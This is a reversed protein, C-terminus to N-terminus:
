SGPGKMALEVRYLLVSRIQPDAVEAIRARIMAVDEPSPDAMLADVVARLPVLNEPEIANLLTHLLTAVEPSTSSAVRTIAKARVGPDEADDLAIAQLLRCNSANNVDLLMIASRKAVTPESFTEIGTTQTNTVISLLVSQSDGFPAMGVANVAAVRLNIDDSKILETKILDYNAQDMNINQKTGTLAFVVVQEDADTLLRRFADCRKVNSDLQGTLYAATRRVFPSESQNTAIGWVLVAKTEIPGDASMLCALLINKYIPPGEDRELARQVGALHDKSQRVATQVFPAILMELDAETQHEDAFRKLRELNGEFDLDASYQLTRASNVALTSTLRKKEPASASAASPIAAQFRPASPIQGSPVCKTLQSEELGPAKRLRSVILVSAALILFTAATVIITQNRRKM